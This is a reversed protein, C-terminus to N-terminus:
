DSHGGLNRAVGPERGALPEVHFTCFLFMALRLQFGGKGASVAVAPVVKLQSFVINRVVFYLRLIMCFFSFKITSFSFVM